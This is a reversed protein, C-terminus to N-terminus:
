KLVSLKNNYKEVSNTLELLYIGSNLESINIRNNVSNVKATKVTKGQIDKIFLDFTNSNPLEITIENKSPNPYFSFSKNTDNEVGTYVFNFPASETRCLNTDIVYVTYDGSETAKYTRQVANNIALGNLYWQYAIAESSSLINGNSSITPVIAKHVIFGVDVGLYAKFNPCIKPSGSMSYYGTEYIKLEFGNEGLIPEGDKYWVINTDYPFPNMTLTATDGECLHTNGLSDIWGTAGGHWVFPPVFVWGDVLVSSSTDTCGNLTTVVKFNYTADWYQDVVLFRNTAGPIISDNKYWQYTDYVQTWLTDTSNPCLILNEPYVTPVYSCQANSENTFMLAFLFSLTLLIKKM